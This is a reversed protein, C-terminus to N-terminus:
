RYWPNKLTRVHASARTEKLHKALKRVDSHSRKRLGAAANILEAIQSKDENYPGAAAIMEGAVAPPLAHLIGRVLEHSKRDGALPIVSLLQAADLRDFGDDSLIACARDMVDGVEGHEELVQCFRRAAERRRGAGIHGEVEALVALPDEGSEGAPPAVTPAALFAALCPAVMWPDPREDPDSAFVRPSALDLRLEVVGGWTGLPLPHAGGSGSWALGEEAIIDEAEALRDDVVDWEEGSLQKCAALVERCRLLHAARNAEDAFAAEFLLVGYNWAEADVRGARDYREAYRKLAYAEDVKPYTKAGDVYRAWVYEGVNKLDAPLAGPEKGLRQAPTVFLAQGDREKTKKGPDEVFILRGGPFVEQFLLCLSAPVRLGLQAVEEPELPAEDAEFRMRGCRILAELRGFLSGRQTRGSARLRGADAALRRVTWADDEQLAEMRAAVAEAAALEAYAEAARGRVHPGHRRPAGLVAELAKELGPLALEGAVHAADWVVDADKQKLGWRVRETAAATQEPTAEALAVAGVSLDRLGEPSPPAALAAEALAALLPGEARWAAERWQETLDDSM